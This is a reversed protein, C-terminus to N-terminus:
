LADLMSLLDDNEGGGAAPAPAEHVSVALASARAASKNADFRQVAPAATPAAAGVAFDASTSQAIGAPTDQYGFDMPIPDGPLHARGVLSALMNMGARGHRSSDLASAAPDVEDSPDAVGAADAAAANGTFEAMSAVLPAGPDSGVAKTRHAAYVNSGLAAPAIPAGMGRKAALPALVATAGVQKGATDFYKLAGLAPAGYAPPQPEPLVLQGDPTQLNETLFISVRIRRDQFFSLMTSHLAWLEAAALTGYVARMTRGVADILDSMTGEITSESAAAAAAALATLSELMSATGAADGDSSRASVAAGAVSHMALMEKLTELHTLTVNVPVSKPGGMASASMCQLKVSMQMLEYLKGMSNSNLRMISAHALSEFVTRLARSTYMVQPRFIERLFAPVLLARVIDCLVRRAKDPAIAQARLRQELVFVMEIGMNLTLVPLAMLHGRLPRDGDASMKKFARAAYEHV